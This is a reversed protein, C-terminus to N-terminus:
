NLLEIEIKKERKRFQRFKINEAKGRHLRWRYESFDKDQQIIDYCPKKLTAAIAKVKWCLQM